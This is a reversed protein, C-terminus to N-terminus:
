IYDQINLAYKRPRCKYAVEVFKGAQPCPDVIGPKTKTSFECQPKKQCAEVVTQLLSYQMTNPRLCEKGEELVTNVPLQAGAVCGHGEPMNGYKAVQISIYTGIPCALSVIEDDCAARQRTRLTGALLELNDSNTFSPGPLVLIGFVLLVLTEM